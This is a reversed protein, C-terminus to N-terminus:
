LLIGLIGQLLSLYYSLAQTSWHSHLPASVCLLSYDWVCFSHHTVGYGRFCGAVLAKGDKALTLCEKGSRAMFVLVGQRKQSTELHVLM